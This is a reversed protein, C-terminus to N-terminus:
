SVKLSSKYSINQCNIWIQNFANDVLDMPYKCAINENKEFTQFVVILEDSDPDYEAALSVVDTRM